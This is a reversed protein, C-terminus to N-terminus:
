YYLNMDWVCVTCMRFSYLGCYGFVVTCMRFSYIGGYGFVVPVLSTMNKYLGYFANNILM